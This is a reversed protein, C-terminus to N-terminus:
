IAPRCTTNLPCQTCYVGGPHSLALGTKGTGPHIEAFAAKPSRQMMLQRGRAARTDVAFSSGPSLPGSAPAARRRHGGRRERSHSRCDPTRRRRTPGQKPIIDPRFNSPGGKSRLVIRNDDTTPQRRSGGGKAPLPNPYPPSAASAMGGGWGEGCLSSPSLRIARAISRSWRGLFM